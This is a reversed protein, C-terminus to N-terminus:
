GGNQGGTGGPRGRRTWKALNALVSDTTAGETRAGHAEEAATRAKEFETEIRELEARHHDELRVREAAAQELAKQLAAAREISATSRGRPRLVGVLFGLLGSLLLGLLGWVAGPIKRLADLM